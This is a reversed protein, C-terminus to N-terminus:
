PRSALVFQAYLPQIRVVAGSHPAEIVQGNGIYMAEHEGPDAFFVLDGPQLDRVPIHVTTSYQAGSYHPLSVGAYAWAWMTLGSCDFTSPGAAGWVYPDGLRTMAAAVATAGGSGAPAPQTPPGTDTTSAPGPPAPAPTVAAVPSAAAPAQQPQEAATQAQQLQAQEAARQQALALQAQRERQAEQAAQAQAVLTTLQGKVQAYTGQLQSQAQQVSTEASKVAGVQAAAHQQAGSLQREATTAQLEAVRYQDLADQQNSALVTAYESRLLENQASPLGAAAQAALTATGGGVYADLAVKRVALRAKAANATAAQVLHQAVAVQQGTQQETLVAKDYQESLASEQLGLSDIQTALQAAQARKDSIEDARAPVSSALLGFLAVSAGIAVRRPLRRRAIM